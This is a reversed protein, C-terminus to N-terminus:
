ELLGSVIDPVSQQNECHPCTTSGFLNCIWDALEADSAKDSQEYLWAGAGLLDTASAPAITSRKDPLKEIGEDAAVFCGNTGIAVFLHTRCHRCKGQFEGRVLGDLAQGWIVDGEFALAAEMLYIRKHRDLGTTKLTEVALNRCDEAIQVHDAMYTERSDEVDRSIVIMAALHLPMVRNAPLWKHAAELLYPLVAFSASYVTGQHCIRSWLDEWVKANEDPSLQELLRPIDEAPGYAHRLGSWDQREAM